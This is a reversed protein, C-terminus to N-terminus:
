HTHVKITAWLRVGKARRGDERGGRGDCVRMKVRAFLWWWGVLRRCCAFGVLARDHANEVCVVRRRPWLLRWCRGGRNPRNALAVIGDPGGVVWDALCHERAVWVACARQARRAGRWLYCAACTSRWGDRAKDVRGRHAVVPRWVTRKRSSKCM